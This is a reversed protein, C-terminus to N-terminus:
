SVLRSRPEESPEGCDLRSIRDEWGDVLRRALGPRGAAMHIETLLTVLTVDDPSAMLGRECGERAADLRGAELELSALHAAADAVMAEVRAAFKGNVETWTWFRRAPPTFPVGRVLALASWLEAAAETPELQRSATVSRELRDLDTQVGVVQYRGDAMEPLHDRGVRSRTEALLNPFRSESIAQGDWLAEIIAPRTSPGNCALFCLLSLQQSTLEHDLGHAEVEGLVSVTISRDTASGVGDPGLAGVDRGGARSGTSGPAGGSGAAGSGPAAPASLRVTTLVPEAEDGGASALLTGLRDAVEASLGQAEVVLGWPELTADGGIVEIAYADAFTEDAVTIMAFPLTRRMAHADLASLARRGAADTVVVVPDLPEDESLRHAYASTVARGDLVAQLDDLWPGLEAVLAAPEHVTVLGYCDIGEIPVTTRVDVRAGTPASALEHVISRALDVPGDGTGGIRISGIAELNLLTGAGVTVLLPTVITPGQPLHGDPVTRALRWTSGDDDSVWPVPAAMPDARDFEIDVHDAHIRLLLPQAVEEGEWVPRTGLSRLAGALWAAGEEDTWHNLAGELEADASTGVPAVPVTGRRRHAMRYRRRRRVQALVGTAILGGAAGLLVPDPASTADAAGGTGGDAPDSGGGDAAVVATDASPDSAAPGPGAQPGPDADADADADADTFVPDPGADPGAAADTSAPDAAPAAADTTSGDRGGDAGVGADDVNAPVPPSSLPVTTTLGGDLPPLSLVQGPFILDPDAIAAGNLDVLREVHDVLAPADVAVEAATLRRESLRWLSDGAAVTVSAGGSSAAATLLRGAPIEAGVPLQLEMGARLGRASGLAPNLRLIEDSRAGDGLMQEAISWLSDGEAVVLRGEVPGPAAAPPAPEAGVPELGLGPASPLSTTAPVTLAVGAALLGSVVRVALGNVAAPVLPAPRSRRGSSLGPGNVILEWAVAWMFQLWLLWVAVALADVVLEAPVDGIVISDRIADPDPITTPLPWGVASWLAIPIGIAIVGGVLVSGM